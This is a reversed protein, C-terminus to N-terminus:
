GLGAEQTVDKAWRVIKYQHAHRPVQTTMLVFLEDVKGRKFKTHDIYDLLTTLPCLLKNGQFEKVSMIQLKSNFKSTNPKFMKTPKQLHFRVGGQLLRMTSLQLQAIDGSRCMQTLLLQLALKGALQNIHLQSNPGMKIFHDLLVNVDWTSFDSQISPPNTNFSADIYKNLVFKDATNLPNGVLYHLVTVFTNAWKVSSFTKM